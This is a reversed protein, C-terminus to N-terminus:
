PKPQKIRIIVHKMKSGELQRSKVEFRGAKKAFDTLNRFGYNRADFEPHRKSLINGVISLYAWGEEDSAPVPEPPVIWTGDAARRAYMATDREGPHWEQWVMHVGGTGDPAMQLGGAGVDANSLKVPTTFSLATQGLCAAQAGTHRLTTTIVAPYLGGTQWDPALSGAEFGWNAVVNDAPPLIFDVQADATGTLVTAPLIAYGAKAVSASYTAADTSVHAAYVGDADSTAARIAAPSTTIAAGPVPAGGNDRLVGSIGWLYCTTHTDGNGPPWPEVNGAGDRGRVRFRYTHGLTCKFTTGTSDTATLVDTWISDATDQAQVDYSQIGSGGLDYGRWLLAVSGGRTFSRLPQVATVPPSADVDEAAQLPLGAGSLSAALLLALILAPPVQSPRVL